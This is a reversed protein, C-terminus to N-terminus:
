KSGAVMFDVAAKVNADSVNVFGGKPPMMGMKGKYGKIANDYLVDNGQKIRPAWNAKDGIKPAGAVGAAHCAACSQKYTTEGINADAAVASGAVMAGAMALVGVWRAKM